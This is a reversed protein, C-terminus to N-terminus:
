KGRYEGRSRCFCSGEGVKRAGFWARGGSQCVPVCDSPQWLFPEADFGKWPHNKKDCHCIKNSKPCMQPPLPNKTTFNVTASKLTKSSHLLDSPEDWLLSNDKEEWHSDDAKKEKEGIEWFNVWRWDPLHENETCTAVQDAKTQRHTMWQPSLSVIRWLMQEHYCYQVKIVQQSKISFDLSSMHLVPDKKPTKLLWGSELWHM